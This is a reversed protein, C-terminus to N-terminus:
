LNFTISKPTFVRIIVDNFEEDADLDFSHGVWSGGKPHNSSLFVFNNDSDKIFVDGKHFVISKTDLFDNDSAIEFFEGTNVEFINKIGATEKFEHM